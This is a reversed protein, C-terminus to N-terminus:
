RGYKEVRNPRMTYSVSVDKQGDSYGVKQVSSQAMMTGTIWVPTFLGNVEIGEPYSVHVIQNPPPPPLAVSVAVALAATLAKLTLKKM